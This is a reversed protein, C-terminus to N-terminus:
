SPGQPGFHYGRVSGLWFHKSADPAVVQAGLPPGWSNQFVIKAGSQPLLTKLRNRLDIPMGDRPTGLPVGLPNRALFAQFAWPIGNPLRLTAWVLREPLLFRPGLHDGRRAGLLFINCPHLSVMQSGLPQGGHARFFRDRSWEPLSETGGRVYVFSRPDWITM